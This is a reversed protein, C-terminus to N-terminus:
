FWGPLSDFNNEKIKETMKFSLFERKTSYWLTELLHEVNSLAESSFTLTDMPLHKHAIRIM